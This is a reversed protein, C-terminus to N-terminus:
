AAFIAAITRSPGYLTTSRPTIRCKAWPNARRIEAPSQDARRARQYCAVCPPDSTRCRAMRRRPKLQGCGNTPSCRILELELSLSDIDTGLKTPM